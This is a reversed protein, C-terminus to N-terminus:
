RHDRWEYRASENVGVERDKIESYNKEGIILEKERSFYREYFKNKDKEDDFLLDVFAYM